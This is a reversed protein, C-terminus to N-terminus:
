IKQNPAPSWFISNNEHAYYAEIEERKEKDEINIAVIKYTIDDYQAQDRKKVRNCYYRKNEEIGEDILYKNFDLCRSVILM